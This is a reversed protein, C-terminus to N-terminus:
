RKKWPPKYCKEKYEVMSNGIRNAEALADKMSREGHFASQVIPNIAALVESDRYHFAPQDRYYGSEWLENFIAMHKPPAKLFGNPDNRVKKLAPQVIRAAGLAGQVEEGGLFKVLEYGEEPHAGKALVWSGNTQVLGVSPEGTRRRPYPVLDWEFRDGIAAMASPRPQYSPDGITALRGAAFPNGNTEQSLVSEQNPTPLLRKRSLDLLWEMAEITKPHDLTYRMQERDFYEGGNSTIFVQYGRELRHGDLQFGWVDERSLKALGDAFEEWTWQGKQAEWPDPVGRERFMTRNYAVGFAWGALPFHYLKGCWSEGWASLYDRQLNIRDRGVFPGLDQLVGTDAYLAYTYLDAIATDPPTGAVIATRLKALMDPVRLISAKVYGTRQEFAPVHPEMLDVREQAWTTWYEVTVPEKSTAPRPEEGARGRGCDTLLAAAPV